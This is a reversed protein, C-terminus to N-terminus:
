LTTPLLSRIKLLFRGKASSARMGHARGLGVAKEPRDFESLDPATGAPDPDRCEDLDTLPLDHVYPDLAHSRQECVRGVRSLLPLRNWSRERSAQPQVAGATHTYIGGSNYNMLPVAWLLVVFCLACLAVAALGAHMFLNARRTFSATM